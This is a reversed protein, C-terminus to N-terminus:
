YLLQYWTITSCQWGDQCKLIMSIKIKEDEKKNKRGFLKGALWYNIAIGFMTSPCHSAQGM